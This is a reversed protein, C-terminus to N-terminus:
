QLEKHTFSPTGTNEAPLGNQQLIRIDLLLGNANLEMHLRWGQDADQQHDLTTLTRGLDELVSAESLDGSARAQRVYVANQLLLQQAQARTTADLSGHEHSITTLLREAQELHMGMEPDHRQASLPGPPLHAYRPARRRLTAFSALVIVAFAPLILRLWHRATWRRSVPQAPPLSVRLRQWAHDVNPTSVVDGSFVRLTEALEEASQACLSCQELHEAIAPSEKAEGMQYAILEHEPVHNM